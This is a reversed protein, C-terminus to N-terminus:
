QFSDNRQRKVKKREILFVVTIKEREYGDMHLFPFIINPITRFKGALRFRLQEQFVEFFYNLDRSAWILPSPDFQGLIHINPMMKPFVALKLM